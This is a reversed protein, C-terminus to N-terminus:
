GDAYRARGPATPRAAVDASRGAAERRSLALSGALGGILWIPISLEKSVFIMAVATWVFSAMLADTLRRSVLDDSEIAKRRVTRLARWASAMLCWFLALAFPGDEALIELYSNHVAPDHLVIPDNRVYHESEVGFRNPGVGVVPHDLAMHWAAQWFVERSAVNQDAAVSKQVLREQILPQFLLFAFALVTAVVIAGGLVGPLSIRRSIIAWLLVAGLGVLSGRSLTALDAAILVIVAITWLRRRREANFAFFVAIPIAGSLYMAFDNPDGIPGSALHVKGTIFRFLAYGAALATSGAYVALCRRVKADGPTLQVFLALFVVYLAYSITRSVGAAPDPSLMLSIVVVFLFAFAWGMQPAYRLPVRGTAAALLWSAVALFGVIKPISISASPYHLMDTWPEVAVVGLLLLEAGVFVLIGIAAAAILGVAVKANLAALGGALAGLLVAFPTARPARESRM